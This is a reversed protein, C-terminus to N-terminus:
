SEPHIPSILKSPGISSNDMTVACRLNGDETFGVRIIGAGEQFRHETEPTFLGLFRGTHDWVGPKGIYRAQGTPNNDDTIRALHVPLDTYAGNELHHDVDAKLRKALSREISSM